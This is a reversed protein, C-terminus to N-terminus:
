RSKLPLRKLAAAADKTIRAASDGRALTNLLERAEATGTRELLEVARLQRIREPDPPPVAIAKLLADIRKKVEANNPKAASERLAQEVQEGFQVLQRYARERVEYKANGLDTILYAVLKSDAATAPKLHSRLLRVTEDPKSAMGDFIALVDQGKATALNAWDRDLDRIVIRQPPNAPKPMRAIDWLIATGDTSASLLQTGSVFRLTTVAGAHGIGIHEIKGSSEWLCISGDKFGIARTNGDLSVAAASADAPILLENLPAPNGIRYTALIRNHVLALQSGNQYWAAVFSQDDMWTILKSWRVQGTAIEWVAAAGTEKAITVQRGNFGCILQRNNREKEVALLSRSDPSWSLIPEAYELERVPALLTTRLLGSRVDWIDVSPPTYRATALFRSDPSFSMERGYEFASSQWIEKGSALDLLTVGSRDPKWTAVWKGDPSTVPSDLKTLSRKIKGSARDWLDIRGTVDRTVVTQEHDGSFSASVYANTPSEPLTVKGDAVNILRIFGTSNIIALRKCDLQFAAAAAQEPLEAILQEKGDRIQWRFLKGDATLSFLSSEDPSFQLAITVITPPKFGPAMEDSDTEFIRVQQKERYYNGTSAALWNGHRNTAIMTCLPPYNDQALQYSRKIRFQLADVLFVDCTGARVALTTGNAIYDMTQIDPQDRRELRGREKGTEADLWVILGKDCGVAITQGDPSVCIARGVRSEGNVALAALPKAQGTFPDWAVCTPEAAAIYVLGNRGFEASTFGNGDLRSLAKGTDADWIVVYSKPEGGVSILRKGDKSFILHASETPHRLRSCGYRIVAGGPLADGYLDLHVADAAHITGVSVVVSFLIVLRSM